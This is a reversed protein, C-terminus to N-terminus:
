MWGHWHYNMSVRCPIWCSGYLKTATMSASM